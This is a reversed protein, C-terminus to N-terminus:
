ETDAPNVTAQQSTSSELQGPPQKLRCERLRQVTDLRATPDRLGLDLFEQYFGTAEEFRGQAQTVTGLSFTIGGRLTPGIERNGYLDRYVAEAAAFEGGRRLIDADNKRDLFLQLDAEDGPARGASVASLAAWTHAGIQGDVALGREAQFRKVAAETQPGFVQGSEPLPDGVAVYLKAQALEVDVGSMGLKLLRHGQEEAGPDVKAQQSTSSELQGPPQKLRCERLRQVTDLRATPDRLGLDLFEQYFGTAEEFRGQAQTVTGLSFTIGGRLTPGIERNGYLDRYVAEAAAFEGGRRLIDADNKRDLFLQLDAEDGPARGASVASLAAWTHAGIQGDVALGREAQFRKVAAETQPGFVQGSEPLPDGVAVYLKAQALEVDVGSMGLKLLRHGQEEAGPDVKAQQSTSSELQGPPQKLRCERLRQVTDLRATPDRLGLDLFEQYFGTAEEFRGQAQTVTGLSFTIGGRLTPGIERNGYLDRYVAEAAAFEGGRRLIDADNKRDLFLQLDAEDGPARGASVASLAAWTHAGIQGDVALGREAQFRKVAAETQPGFVQGSEPLPDGVAVYLKAQALEVDVGSMGLKLVRHKSAAEPAAVPQRQVSVTEFLRAVAANGATRELDLLPHDRAPAGSGSAQKARGTKTKTKGQGRPAQARAARARRKM